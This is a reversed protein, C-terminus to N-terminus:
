LKIRTLLQLTVHFPIVRGQEAPNVASTTKEIAAKLVQLKDSTVDVCIVVRRKEALHPPEISYVEGWTLDAPHLKAEEVMTVVQPYFKPDFGYCVTIHYPDEGDVGPITHVQCDAHKSERLTKAASILSDPPNINVGIWNLKKAKTVQMIRDPVDYM